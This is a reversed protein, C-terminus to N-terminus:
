FKAPSIFPLEFAYKIDKIEKFFPLCSKLQYAHILLLWHKQPRILLDHTLCNPMVITNLSSKGTKM